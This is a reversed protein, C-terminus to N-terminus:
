GTPEDVASPDGGVPAFVRSKRGCKPADFNVLTLDQPIQELSIGISLNTLPMTEGADPCGFFILSANWNNFVFRDGFFDFSYSSSLL